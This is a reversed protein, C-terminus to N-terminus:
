LCAIMIRQIQCRVRTHTFCCRTHVMAAAIDLGVMHNTGSIHSHFADVRHNTGGHPRSLSQHDVGGATLGSMRQPPGGSNGMASRVLAAESPPIMDVGHVRYGRQRHANSGIVLVAGNSRTM